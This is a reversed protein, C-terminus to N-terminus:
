GQDAALDPGSLDADSVPKLRSTVLRRYLSRAKEPTPGVLAWFEATALLPNPHELGIHARYSSWRWQEPRSKLGAAVPNLDIYCATSLLQAEGRVQKSYFRNRFLHGTHGHRQNWWCAYGSLLEQMGESLGEHPVKVLLHIHNSMLCYGLVLWGYRWAVDELLSIFRECDVDDLFILRGDNGRSAVHYTGDREVIRLARAM